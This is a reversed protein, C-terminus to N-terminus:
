KKPFVIGFTALRKNPLKNTIVTQGDEDVYFKRGGPGAMEELYRKEYDSESFLVASRATKAWDQDDLDAGRIFEIDEGTLKEQKEIKSKIEEKTAM